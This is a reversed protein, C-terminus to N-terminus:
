LEPALTVSVAGVVVPLLVNAEHLPQEEVLVTVQV